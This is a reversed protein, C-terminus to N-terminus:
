PPRLRYFRSRFNTWGPDSFYSAGGSLSNTGVAFWAPHALNTCAEVVLVLNSAGTITFGFRNTRVGFTPGRTQLQPNWLVTPLQEYTPGWGTTGPLYYATAKTDDYFVDWSLAPANGLFLVGRLSTCLFFASHGLYLVNKPITLSTLSACYSFAGDEINTIGRGLAVTVLNTCGFFMGM